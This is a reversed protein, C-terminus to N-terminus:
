QEDLRTVDKGVKRRRKKAETALNALKPAVPPKGNPIVQGQSNDRGRSDERDPFALTFLAKLWKFM